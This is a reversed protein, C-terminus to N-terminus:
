PSRILLASPPLGEWETRWRIETEIRYFPQVWVQRLTEVAPVQSLWAPAEAASLIDLLRHRDTGM